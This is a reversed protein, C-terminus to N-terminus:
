ILHTDIIYIASAPHPRRPIILIPDMLTLIPTGRVLKNTAHRSLEPPEPNKLRRLGVKYM